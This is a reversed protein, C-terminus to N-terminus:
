TRRLVAPAERLDVEDDWAYLEGTPCARAEAVGRRRRLRARLQKQFQERRVRQASPTARGRRRTPWIDKLFVPKGDNGTGLPETTSISTSTGALAYAVVLPPSALYNPACRPTSAARSTATAPSCARRRRPGRRQHGEAVPTPCRAATASAPRAATASSTSASSRSTRCHPGGERPVRHRGELRPRAVDEGVPAARSGRRSRRRRSSAPPWSCRRTRPTRAARSRRSSSRATTCRRVDTATSRRRGARRRERPAGARPSGRCREDLARQPVSTKSTPSRSATRRARRAPSRRSSPASTSSSRTPSSPSRRQRPTRFLGQEKCYAEVLQSRSRPGGPSACTPSRRRTSRSSAWTAGYEPAMNAITARDALPLEALGPGFFEVFKGVVGKKRLMQTVTLVLDTATAGEPLKGTLKFGVVQPILMSVPQGLMAAEAEIGGVGWGLVGLGNIMTTHSDTGVLTDPYAVDRRGREADRRARPVRPEGPPCIGTDPPVVRFNTFAQQGWHLFPTASATASSSSSPTRGSRPRRLRVRRGAGLPRHRARGAPAPQHAEPRRRAANMAERMAALDVVAPVGTFDQLLVRRRTFAIEQSPEAKPDWHLSRRSTRAGSSGATRTASCTRSCSRSRIRSGRWPAPRVRRAPLHRVHLRLSRPHGPRRLHEEHGGQLPFRGPPSPPSPERRPASVGGRARPLRRRHQRPAHDRRGKRAGAAPRQTAARRKTKTAAKEPAAARRAPKKTTATTSRARTVVLHPTNTLIARDLPKRYGATSLERFRPEMEAGLGVLAEAGLAREATRFLDNEEKRIHLLVVEELVDIRPTGSTATPRAPSSGGSSTTSSGTSRSRPSPLSPRPRRVAPYFIEEEIGTHAVLLKALEERVAKDDGSTKVRELLQEIERHQKQLLETAKM